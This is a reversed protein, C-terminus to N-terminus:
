MQKTVYCLFKNSSGQPVGVGGGAGGSKLFFIYFLILITVSKPRLDSILLRFSVMLFLIELFQKRNHEANKHSYLAVGLGETSLRYPAGM